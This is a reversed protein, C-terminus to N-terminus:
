VACIPLQVYSFNLTVFNDGIFTTFINISEECILSNQKVREFRIIRNCMVFAAPWDLLEVVDAHVNRRRTPRGM